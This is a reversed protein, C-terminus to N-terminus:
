RPTTMTTRIISPTIRDPMFIRKIAVACSERDLLDAHEQGLRQDDVLERAPSTPKM